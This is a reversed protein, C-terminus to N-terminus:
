LLTVSLVQRSIVLYEIVRILSCRCDSQHEVLPISFNVYVVDQNSPGRELAFHKANSECSSM